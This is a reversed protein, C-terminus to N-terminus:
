SWLNLMNNLGKKKSSMLIQNIAKINLNSMNNWNIKNLNNCEYVKSLIGKNCFMVLLKVQVVAVVVVLKIQKVICNKCKNLRKSLLILLVIGLLLM